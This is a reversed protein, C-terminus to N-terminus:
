KRNVPFEHKHEPNQNSDYTVVKIGNEDAEAELRRNALASRKFVETTAAIRGIEDAELGAVAKVKGSIKESPM